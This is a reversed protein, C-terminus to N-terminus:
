EVYDDYIRISPEEGYIHNETDVIAPKGTAEIVKMLDNMTELRIRGTGGIHNVRNVTGLEKLKPYMDTLLRDRGDSWRESIITFEM